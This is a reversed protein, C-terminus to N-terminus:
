KHVLGREDIARSVLKDVQILSTFIKAIITTGNM